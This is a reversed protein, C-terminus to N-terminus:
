RYSMVLFTSFRQEKKNGESPPSNRKEKMKQPWNRWGKYKKRDLNKLM